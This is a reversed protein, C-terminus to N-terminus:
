ILNILESEISSWDQNLNITNIKIKKGGIMKENRIQSHTSPYLLMGEVSESHNTPKYNNIYTYIQYLNNSKFKPVNFNYQYVDNYYKTDIILKSDKKQITIDTKMRPYFEDVEDSDWKIQESGKVKYKNRDLNKKYFNLIFKEFIAAMEKDSSIFDSLEYKGTNENFGIKSHIYYSLNTLFKLHKRHKAIKIKKFLDRNIKIDDVGKFYILKKKLDKKTEIKIKSRILINITSKILQNFETNISYQDYICTFKKSKFGLSKITNSFDIKGRITKLEENLTIYDKNIGNKLYKTLASDFIHSFFETNTKYSDKDLNSKKSFSFYGWSYSLLHYINKIPIQM